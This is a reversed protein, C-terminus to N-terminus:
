PTPDAEDLTENSIALVTGPTLNFNTYIVFMGPRHGKWHSDLLGYELETDNPDFEADRVTTERDFRPWPYQNSIIGPRVDNEEITYRTFTLKGV